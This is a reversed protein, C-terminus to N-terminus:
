TEVSAVTGSISKLDAEIQRIRSLIHRNDDGMTETVNRFKSEAEFQAAKEVETLNQSIRSEMYTTESRMARMREDVRGDLADFKINLSDGLEKLREHVFGFRETTSIREAGFNNALEQLSNALEGM